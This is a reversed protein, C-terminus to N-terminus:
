LDTREFNHTHHLGCRNGNVINQADIVRCYVFSLGIPLAKFLRERDDGNQRTMQSFVEGFSERLAKSLIADPALYEGGHNQSCSAFLEEESKVSDGDIIVPLDRGLANFAPTSESIYRLDNFRLFAHVSWCPKQQIIRM